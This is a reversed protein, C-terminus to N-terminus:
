YGLGIRDAVGLNIRNTGPIPTTNCAAQTTRIYARSAGKFAQYVAMAVQSDRAEIQYYTGDTTSDPNERFMAYTKGEFTVVRVFYGFATCTAHAPTVIMICSFLLLFTIIALKLFKM